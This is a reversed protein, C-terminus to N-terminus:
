PLSCLYSTLCKVQLADQFGDGTYKSVQMCKALQSEKIIQSVRNRVLIGPYDM